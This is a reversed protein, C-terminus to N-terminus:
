VGDAGSFCLITAEGGLNLCEFRSPRAPPAPVAEMTPMALSAKAEPM